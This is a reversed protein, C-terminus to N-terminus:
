PRVTLLYLREGPTVPAGLARRLDATRPDDLDYLRVPLRQDEPAADARARLAGDVLVRSSGLRPGVPLLTGFERVVVASPQAAERFLSKLLGAPVDLDTFRRNVTPSTPEGGRMRIDSPEFLTSRDAISVVAVLVPPDGRMAQRVLPVSAVALVSALVLGGLLTPWRWSPITWRRRDAPALPSPALRLNALTGAPPEPGQAALELLRRELVREAALTNRRVLAEVAVTDFSDPALRGAVWDDLLREEDPALAEGRGGGNSLVALMVIDPDPPGVPM